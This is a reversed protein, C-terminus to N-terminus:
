TTKNQNKLNFNHGNIEISKKFKLCRKGTENQRGAESPDVNFIENKNTLNTMPSKGAHKAVHTNKKDKEQCMEKLYRHRQRREPDDDENESSLPLLNTNQNLNEKKQIVTERMFRILYSAM